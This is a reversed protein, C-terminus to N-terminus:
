KQLVLNSMVNQMGPLREKKADKKAASTRVSTRRASEDRVPKLGLQVKAKRAGDRCAWTSSFCEEKLAQAKRGGVYERQVNLNM